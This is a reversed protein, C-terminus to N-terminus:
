SHSGVKHDIKNLTKTAVFVEPSFLDPNRCVASLPLYIISMYTRQKRNGNGLLDVMNKTHTVLM